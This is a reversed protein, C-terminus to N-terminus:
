KQLKKMEMSIEFIDRMNNQLLVAVEWLAPNSDFDWIFNGSEFNQRLSANILGCLSDVAFIPVSRENIKMENPDFYIQCESSGPTGYPLCWLVWANTSTLADSMAKLAYQAMQNINIETSPVHYATTWKGEIFKEILESIATIHKEELVIGSITVTPVFGRATEASRNYSDDKKVTATLIGNPSAAPLDPFPKFIPGIIDGIALRASLAETSEPMVTRQAYGTETVPPVASTQTTELKVDLRHDGAVGSWQPDDVAGDFDMGLGSIGPRHIGSDHVVASPSFKFVCDIETATFDETTPHGQAKLGNLLKEIDKHYHVIFSTPFDLHAPGSVLYTQEECFPVHSEGSIVSTM